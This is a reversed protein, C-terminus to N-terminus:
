AHGKAAEIWRFEAENVPRDFKRLEIRGAELLLSMTVPTGAEAAMFAAALAISQINGGTLSLRALREFDLVGLPTAPPFVREWIRRREDPGPYPFNVIARLRRLFAPDLASKMNTALIALGGFADMRQLLYDTEINAYRDHADKVESRKGFLADAEDFLLIVGGGEAADFVARLNKETEGIYKSVVASLDIRYLDLRLANALVEAAMTKGTGSEGAFLASVGLGRNMRARFGWGDYVETRARVQAVVQRLLATEPAPLVLQDWDARPDLREALRALAPRTKERCANWVREALAQEGPGDVPAAAHAVAAITSCNLDFQASLLAPLSPARTGLAAAWAQQQEAPTPRAVELVAAPPAPLDIGDRTDVFVLGGTRALFRGVRQAPSDPGGAQEFEHADLYLALPLLLSDRHWLRALTELEGAHAPLADAALRYLELNLSAAVTGAVDRKSQRDRGRLVLAAQVPEQERRLDSHLAHLLAAAAARHSEPLREPVPAALPQLLPALRDDPYNLGKVFNTIREDARLASATLARHGPQDIEILRWYRLPREPSLAEWAPNDFLAMALAFTPFDRDAQGHAAACRAATGTDLELAVCLLLVDREFDSLGLRRALALLAPPPEGASAAALRQAAETGPRAPVAAGLAPAAANGPVPGFTRRFFGLPQPAPQAQSAVAEGPAHPRPAAHARAAADFRQRLVALAAGLYADNNARWADLDTSV